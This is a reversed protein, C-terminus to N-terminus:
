WWRRLWDEFTLVTWWRMSDHEGRMFGLVASAVERESVYELEAARMKTTLELLPEARARLAQRGVDSPLIRDLELVDSPLLDKMAHRLVRKDLLSDNLHWTPLGLAFEILRQDLLPHSAKLGHEHLSADTDESLVHILGDTLAHVRTAHGPRRGRVVTSQQMAAWLEHRSPHLWPVPVQRRAWTGPLFQRGFPALLERRVFKRRSAYRPLVRRTYRALEGFRLSALMDAAPSINLGFLHDGSFGTFMESRGHSRAADAMLHWVPAYMNYMPNSRRTVIGSEPLMNEPDVVIEILEVGLREATKRALPAEDTSPLSPASWVFAKVDASNLVLAALVTSSDMGASLTVGIAQGHVYSGIVEILLERLRAASEDFSTRTDVKISGPDFAPVSPAPSILAADDCAIRINDFFTRPPLPASAGALLGVAVREDITSVVEELISDIEAYPRTTGDPLVCVPRLLSPVDPLCALESM